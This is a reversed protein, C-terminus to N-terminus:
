LTREPDPASIPAAGVVPGEGLTLLQAARAINAGPGFPGIDPKPLGGEFARGDYLGGKGDDVPYRLLNVFDRQPTVGGVAQMAGVNLVDKFADDDAGGFLRQGHVPGEDLKKTIRADAIWLFPNHDRFDRESGLRRPRPIPAM